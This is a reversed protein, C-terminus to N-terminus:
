AKASNSRYQRGGIPRRLKQRIVLGNAKMAVPVVFALGAFGGECWKLEAPVFTGDEFEVILTAAGVLDPLAEGRIGGSSIDHIAFARPSGDIHLSLTRGDASIREHKRREDRAPTSANSEVVHLAVARHNVPRDIGTCLTGDIPLATGCVSCEATIRGVYWQSHGCGPCRNAEDTRFLVSYGRASLDLKFSRSAPIAASVTM